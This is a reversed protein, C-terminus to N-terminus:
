YKVMLRDKMNEYICRYLKFVDESDPNGPILDPHYKKSVGRWGFKLIEEQINNLEQLVRKDIHTRM